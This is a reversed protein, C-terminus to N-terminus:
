MSSIILRQIFALVLVTIMPSLDLMGVRVYRRVLGLMPETIRFLAYRLPNNAQMVGAIVLWDMIVRGFIAVMLIQILSNLLGAIYVM